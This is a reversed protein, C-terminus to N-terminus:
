AASVPRTILYAGLLVAVIGAAQRLSPVEGLLFFAFTLTFLPIFTTMASLRTIGIRHLAEIWLLKALVYVLLGVAILSPLANLLANESPMPELLLAAAFLVPLAALNRFALITMAGVHRRARKQYLNAIPALAAAILVLLDGPNFHLTEPWLIALAGLGMLFAAATHLPHLKERGFLNFYLYSFFLQLTLIVALNGATTYRLGIFLLTFLATIYLSTYLLAPLAPRYWLGKFDETFALLLLLAVTAIVIIVLYSHLPGISQVALLSLIPFWGEFFALLVAYLHGRRQENM